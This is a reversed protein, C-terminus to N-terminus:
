GSKAADKVSETDTMSGERWSRGTEYSLWFITIMTILGM